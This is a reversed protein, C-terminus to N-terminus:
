TCDGTELALLHARGPATYYQPPPRDTAVGPAASPASVSEPAVCQDTSVAAVRGARPIEVCRDGQRVLLQGDDQYSVSGWVVRVLSLDWSPLPAAPGASEGTRAVLTACGPCGAVLTSDEVILPGASTLLIPEQAETFGVVAAIAQGFADCDIGDVFSVLSLEASGRPGSETRVPVRLTFSAHQIGPAPARRLLIRALTPADLTMLVCGPVEEPCTTLIEASHPVSGTCGVVLVLLGALTSNPM